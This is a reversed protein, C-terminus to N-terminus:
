EEEDSKKNDMMEALEEEESLIDDSNPDEYTVQSQFQVPTKSLLIKEESGVELTITDQEHSLYNMFTLLKKRWKDNWWNEGQKRRLAHQRSSSEILQIGDSTFFIHSSISYSPFPYLKASGAIGFHWNNEKIKGVMLVSNHKDKELVGKRFWYAMKNSMSYQTVKESRFNKEFAQNLLQVVIRKAEGKRIFDSEYEDALIAGIPIRISESNRYTETKPWVDIFDYEWAFTAIYEGFRVAPYQVMEPKFGRPINHRFRHFRLEVPLEEIQFWSSDFIEERNVVTRGLTFLQDYVVKSKEPSPPNPVVQEKELAQLLDQLGKAWSAKFDISNLRIIEVPLDSYKLNKDIVLPYIFAEDGLSRKVSKAVALEQLVGERELSESTCVLLFKITNQRIENEIVKWFDVGKELFLIDCWVTYGLAILKLSLWQTFANDIPTAHSIFLKKRM